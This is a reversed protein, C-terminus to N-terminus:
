TQNSFYRKVRFVGRRIVLPLSHFFLRRPKEFTEPAIKEGSVTRDKQNKLCFHRKGWLSPRLRSISAFSDM